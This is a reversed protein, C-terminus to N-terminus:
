TKSSVLIIIEIWMAIVCFTSLLFLLLRHLPHNYTVHILTHVLRLTVFGWALGLLYPSSFNLVLVLVCVIYFLVPIELLNNFNRGMKLVNEPPEFGSMTKFYRPNIDGSKASSVRVIALAFGVLFTLLVLASMPYVIEM